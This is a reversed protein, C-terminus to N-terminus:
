IEKTNTNLYGVDKVKCWFMDHVTQAHEVKVIRFRGIEGSEFKARIEDNVEPKPTMHGVLKRDEYSFWNISNSWSRHEWINIVRGPVWEKKEKKFFKAFINM